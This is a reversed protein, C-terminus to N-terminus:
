QAEEETPLDPSVEQVVRYGDRVLGDRENEWEHLLVGELAWDSGPLQLIRTMTNGSSDTWTETLPQHEKNM